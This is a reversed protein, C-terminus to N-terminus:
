RTGDHRERNTKRPLKTKAVHEKIAAKYQKVKDDALKRQDDDLAVARRRDWKRAQRELARQKQTDEYTVGKNGTKAAPTSHGPLYGTTNHRCNPHFLGNSRAEELSGDVTVKVDENGVRMTVTHKGSKGGVELLKGEWPKCLPCEYPAESVMVVTVGAEALRDTHAAVMTNMVQTRVAMEVYTAIEWNRGAKDVFGTIGANAFKALARGAAGLRNSTGAEVAASVETIVLQYANMTQSLMAKEVPALADNLRKSGNSAAKSTDAAPLDDALGGLEQDASAAGLDAAKKTAKAGAKRGKSLLKSALSAITRRVFGSGSRNSLSWNGDDLKSGLFTAIRGLLTTEAETYAAVVEDALGEGDEPNV